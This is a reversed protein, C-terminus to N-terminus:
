PGREVFIASGESRPDSAAVMDGDVDSVILQAHGVRDDLDPLMRVPMELSELSEIAIPPVRREVLIQDYPDDLDM